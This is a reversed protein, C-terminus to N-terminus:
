SVVALLEKMFVQLPLRQEDQPLEAIRDVASCLAALPWGSMPSYEGGLMGLAHLMSVALGARDFLSPADMVSVDACQFAPTGGTFDTLKALHVSSGFDGLWACGAQADIFINAPKVDGHLWGHSHVADLAAAVRRATALAWSADMPAPVNALTCAYKPMLIGERLTAPPSDRAAEHTGALKVHTVPVLAQGGRVADPLENWLACEAEARGAKLPVKLVRPVNNEFAHFFMASQVGEVIMLGDIVIGQKQRVTAKTRTHLVHAAMEYVTAAAAPTTCMTVQTSLMASEAITKLVHQELTIGAGVLLAQFRELASAHSLFQVGAVAANRDRVGRFLGM